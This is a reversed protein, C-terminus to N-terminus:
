WGPDPPGPRRDHSRPVEMDRILERVIEPFRHNFLVMRGIQKSQLIQEADQRFQKRIELQKAGLEELINLFEDIKDDDGDNSWVLDGMKRLVERRNEEVEEMRKEMENLLPFFRTAQEETLELEETMKWIKMTKIKAEMKARHRQAPGPVPPPGQAYVVAPLLIAWTLIFIHSRSLM